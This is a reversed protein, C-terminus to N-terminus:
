RTAGPLTAPVVAFVRGGAFTRDGDKLRGEPGTLRRTPRANPASEGTASSASGARIPRCRRCSAPPATAMPLRPSRASSRPSSSTAIAARPRARRQPAPQRADSRAPRGPRRSLRLPHAAPARAGPRRDPRDLADMGRRRDGAAPDPRAHVGLAPDAGGRHRRRLRRRARPRALLPSPRCARTHARGSLGRGGRRGALATVNAEPVPAVEGWLRDMNEEGYLRGASVLLKSPDILHPAGVESVYVRLEPFRRVLVGTAGAHDLHIHTLLLARPPEELGDIWHELASAPGPDVIM